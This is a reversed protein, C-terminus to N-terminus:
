RSATTSSPKLVSVTIKRNFLQDVKVLWARFAPYDNAKVRPQTFAIEGTALVKGEVLRLQIRARGFPSDEVVDPPLDAGTFGAPLEYTLEMKNSFANPLLLDYKRESLPAFAQAFARGTGFPYFRLGRDLVEAFRPVSLAYDVSVDADLRTLDTLELSDVTLGPFSNAWSQEFTQKRTAATQYSRRYEPANQGTVTNRGKLKASGDPQLSVTLQLTTQNEEAMAEPTTFFRSGGNPNVVLVNAQRDAYPLEKAGHFEATGDLFLDFKPVYLIAHNFAALSAPEEGIDGLHRMRLLVLQSDVGAVTLMAHILSAKDKCDGFRRSLIRDVRYPKYGHIGFELAVYRTNTVVFNYLARVVALEDQRNVGQLAQDVTRRLEENPTLQDRVLGWYYRGVQDWTQYTSVHLTTAVEAWGPMQPEPLVKPVNSATWQYLQRGGELEETALAIGPGLRTKNWYLPRKPPMDVAFRYRVKPATTQVYDVQGWYDSLLNEQSTDDIRYQLELVDGEDLQPFSLVRARADYYMGSWPENINREQEGFSDVVSGDPKLVRAKLVRVEQRNPSYTIPHSRFAEVGRQTFVKVAIQQFRSSLGSPQVRVQANDVVYVADEGAFADAEKILPKVDFVQYAAAASNGQLSRLVEKLSPNQPRYVLSKEFAAIADEKRGASLLARGEREYVDPDAPCLQKSDAFKVEADAMRGNAAYLEALSLRVGNNFPNLKLSTELEKAAEDVRGMDALATSLARRSSADDYRLAVSLRLRELAEQHRDYRRSMRAAEQAVLPLKSSQRFLAETENLARSPQEMADLARIRLIKANTYRPYEAILADLLGLARDPFERNYEHNALKLRAYPNNPEAKLALEIHRRRLNQDEQQLQAAILQIRVDNPAAAAAKEAEVADTKEKEEFARTFALITAYDARLAADNPAKKLEREVLQTLTPLVMPQPPVGKELTPISDPMTVQALPGGGEVKDQRLFFGLPGTDQCVKLLVRNTGKRLRVAVRSQDPAPTNYRDESLVKQGNVWLRFAGSSGVNLAIRSDEQSDLFTLAYAVAESNPRLAAGLDIFGDTARTTIRQWSVDRGKAPYSAKLDLAAEPGFDTDCGSKGENDFSGVVYFKSIYNLGELMDSSKQTRGRALEINSLFGRALAKVNADTSRRAILSWYTQAFVNLDEVQDRLEHLRILAAAGRVSSGQALAAKAYERALEATPDQPSQVPGEAAFAPLALLSAFLIAACLRFTRLM